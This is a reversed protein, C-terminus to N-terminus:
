VIPCKASARCTIIALKCAFLRHRFGALRAHSLTILTACFLVFLFFWYCFFDVAIEQVARLDGQGVPSFFRSSHDAGSRIGTIGGVHKLVAHLDPGSGFSERSNVM